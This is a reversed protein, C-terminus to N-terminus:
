SVRNLFYCAFDAVKSLVQVGAYLCHECINMKQANSDTSNLARMTVINVRVNKCEPKGCLECVPVRTTRDM